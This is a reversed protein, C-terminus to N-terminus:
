KLGNNTLCLKYFNELKDGYDLDNKLIFRIIEEYSICDVNIRSFLRTFLELFAKKSPDNGYQLVRKGVIDEINKKYTYAKFSEMNLTEQPAIVFLGIQDIFANELHSLTQVMCSIDRAVQQYEKYCRIGKKLPTTMTTEIVVFQNADKLLVVREKKKGYLVKFHGVVGSVNASPEALPDKEGKNRVKFPTELTANIYYRTNEVCKFAKCIKRDTDSNVIHDDNNLFWYMVLSLLYNENYLLKPSFIRKSEDETLNIIKTLIEKM